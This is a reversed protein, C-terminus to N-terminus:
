SRVHVLSRERHTFILLLVLMRTFLLIRLLTRSPRMWRSGIRCLAILWRGSIGGVGAVLRGALALNILALSIFIGIIAATGSLVSPDSEDFDFLGGM